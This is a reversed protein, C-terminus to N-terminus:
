GCTISFELPAGYKKTLFDYHENFQSVSKVILVEEGLGPVTIVVKAPFNLKLGEHLM